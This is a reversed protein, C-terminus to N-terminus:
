ILETKIERGGKGRLDFTISLAMKGQPISILM